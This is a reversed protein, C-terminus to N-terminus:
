RLLVESYVSADALIPAAIFACFLVQKASPPAFNPEEKDAGHGQKGTLFANWIFLQSWFLFLVAGYLAMGLNIELQLGTKSIILIVSAACLFTVWAAFGRGKNVIVCAISSMAVISTATLLNRGTGLTLFNDASVIKGLLLEVAMTIPTLPHYPHFKAMVLSSNTATATFGSLAASIGMAGIKMGAFLVTFPAILLLLSFAWSAMLLWRGKIGNMSSVFKAIHLLIFGWVSVTMLTWLIVGFQEPVPMVNTAFQAVRLIVWCALTILM